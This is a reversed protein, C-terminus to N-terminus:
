ALSSGPLEDEEKEFDDGHRINLFFFPPTWLSPVVATLKTSLSPQYHPVTLERM